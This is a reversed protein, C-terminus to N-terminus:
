RAFSHLGAGSSDDVKTRRRDGRCAMLKRVRAAADIEGIAIQAHPRREVRYEAFAGAVALHFEVKAGPKAGSLVLLPLYPEVYELARPRNNVRQLCYLVGVFALMGAFISAPQFHWSSWLPIGTASYRVDEVVAVAAVGLISAALFAIATYDESQRRRARRRM